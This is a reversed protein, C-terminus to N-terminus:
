LAKDLSYSLEEIAQGNLDTIEFYFGWNDSREGTKVLIHNWGEFLRTYHVVSGPHPSQLNRESYIVKYNHFIKLDGFSGLEFRVAQARPSYVATYAYGITTQPSAYLQNFDIYGNQFEQQEWEVTKGMSKYNTGPEIDLEPPYVHDFGEGGRNSFPGITLWTKVFNHGVAFPIVKRYPHQNWTGSVVVSLPQRKKWLDQNSKVTFGLEFPPEENGEFAVSGDATFNWGQPVNMTVRSDHSIQQSNNVQVDIGIQSENQTVRQKQVQIELPTFYGLLESALVPDNTLHNLNQRFDQELSQAEQFQEMMEDRNVDTEMVEPEEVLGSSIVDLRVGRLNIDMQIVQDVHKQLEWLRNLLENREPSQAVKRIANACANKVHKLWEADERRIPSTRLLLPFAENLNSFPPLRRGNLYLTYEAKVNQRFELNVLQLQHLANTILLSYSPASKALTEIECYAGLNNVSYNDLDIRIKAPQAPAAILTLTDGKNLTLPKDFGFVRLRERSFDQGTIFKGNHLVRLSISSSHTFFSPKYAVQKLRAKSSQSVQEVNINCEIIATTPSHFVEMRGQYTPNIVPLAISNQQQPIRPGVILCQRVRDLALGSVTNYIGWAGADSLNRLSPDVREFYKQVGSEFGAQVLSANDFANAFSVGYASKPRNMSDSERLRESISQYHIQLYDPEILPQFGHLQAFTEGPLQGLKPAIFENSPNPSASYRPKLYSGNWLQSVLNQQSDQLMDRCRTRINIEALVEEGIRLAAMWLSGTFLRTSQENERRALSPGNPISDNNSDQAMLWLIAERLHPYMDQLFEEDGTWHMYNYLLIVFAAASDPRSEFGGLVDGAGFEAYLNGIASPVEGTSLQANAFLQLEKKLLEPFWHLLFSSQALREEPSGLNGPYKNDESFLSFQGDKLYVGSEALLAPSNLLSPKLWAPLTATEVPQWLAEMEEYIRAHNEAIEEAIEVAGDWRNDYFVGLDRGSKVVQNPMYWSLVFVFTTSENAALERQVAVAAAPRRQDKVSVSGKKPVAEVLRGEKAFMADFESIPANPDWSPLYSVKDGDQTAALLAYEGIANKILPSNPKESPEFGFRFGRLRGRRIHEQACQGEPAFSQTPTGGLGIMNTWSFALSVTQKQQSQNSATYRFVVAPTSSREADGWFFPAFAHQEVTLNGSPHTFKTTVEPYSQAVSQIDKWGRENDSEHGIRSSFTEQISEAFFAAFNGNSLQLPQHRNNNITVQGISGDQLIEIFGTGIGGLPTSLPKPIEQANLLRPFAILCFVFILQFLRMPKIFM